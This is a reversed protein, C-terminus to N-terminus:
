FFVDIKVLPVTRLELFCWYRHAYSSVVQLFMKHVIISYYLMCIEYDM